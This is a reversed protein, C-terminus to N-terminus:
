LAPADEDYISYRIDDFGDGPSLVHFSPNYSDYHSSYYVAASYNLFDDDFGYKVVDVANYVGTQYWKQGPFYKAFLKKIIWWYPGYSLYNNPTQDLVKARNALGKKIIAQTDESKRAKKIEQAIQEADQRTYKHM